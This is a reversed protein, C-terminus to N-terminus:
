LSLPPAGPLCGLSQTPRPGSTLHTPVQLPSGVWPRLYLTCSPFTIGSSQGPAWSWLYTSAPLPPLGAPLRHVEMSLLHHPGRKAKWQARSGPRQVSAQGQLRWDVGQKTGWIFTFIEGPSLKRQWHDPNSPGGSLLKAPTRKKGKLGRPGREQNHFVSSRRQHFVTTRKRM